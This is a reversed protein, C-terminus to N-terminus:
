SARLTWEEMDALAEAPLDKRPGSLDEGSPGPSGRSTWDSVRAPIFATLRGM